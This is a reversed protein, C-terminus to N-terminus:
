LSWPSSKISGFHRMANLTPSLVVNCGGVVRRARMDGDEEDIHTYIYIYIDM